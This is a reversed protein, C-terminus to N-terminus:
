APGNNKNNNNDKVFGALDFGRKAEPSQMFQRWVSQSRYNEAMLLTIGLDIGIVDENVWGSGPHFADAFGYRKFVKSGHQEYITSIVKGCDQPLFVLSGAAACPVITGDIPGMKPPGGWAVYGKRSDSSTIGWLNDDMWPYKDHLELCFAKHAQTALKSNEFYNAHKDRVGRFDFWAQSYQHIFLPAKAGIYRFGEYDFQPRTWAEWSSAPIAHTPSSMALFYMAMLESFSDWRYPLFGSEPKWGHSLTAGGNLMWRWDVRELIQNALKTIDSSKFYERCHIIGCLLWATDISSLECRWLRDGTEIDIFHYFFGHEQEAKNAFFKLTALARERAAADNVYGRAKAICLASLAFGTSATSGIRRDDNGDAKARDKAIGTRPSSQEYFYRCIRWELEDLLAALSLAPAAKAQPPAKQLTGAIASSRAGSVLASSSLLHLFRRRNMSADTM